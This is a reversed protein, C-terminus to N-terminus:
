FIMAIFQYFFYTRWSVVQWHWPHRFLPCPPRPFPPLKTFSVREWGSPCIIGKVNNSTGGSKWVKRWGVNILPAIIIWGPKFDWHKIIGKQGCKSQTTCLEGKASKLGICMPSNWSKWLKKWTIISQDLFFQRSYKTPSSTPCPNKFM